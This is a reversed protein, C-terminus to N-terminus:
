LRLSVVWGGVLLTNLAGWLTQDLSCRKHAARTLGGLVNSDRQSLACTCELAGPASLSGALSVTLGRPLKLGQNTKVNADLYDRCSRSVTPIMGRTIQPFSLDRSPLYSDAPGLLRALHDFM